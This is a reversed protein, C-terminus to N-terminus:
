PSEKPANVVFQIRRNRARGAESHNDAVPESSGKGIALLRDPEIGLQILRDVVTQAREESLKLNAQETGIDDTHGIVLLRARSCQRAERQLENLLSESRYPIVASNPPFMIQHARLIEDFKVQCSPLPPPSVLNSHVKYGLADLQALASKIEELHAEDSATGTFQIAQDNVEFQGNSLSAFQRILLSGAAAWHEPAPAGPKIDPRYNGEGVAENAAKALARQDSQSPAYGEISLQHGDFTGSLRYPSPPPAVTINSTVTDPGWLGRVLNEAQQRSEETATEGALSVKLGNVHVSVHHLGQEHLARITKQELNDQIRPACFKASTTVLLAFALIGLIRIQWNKM